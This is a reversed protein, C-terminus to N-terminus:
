ANQEVVMEGSPSKYQWAEATSGGTAVVVAVGGEFTLSLSPIASAARVTKGILGVLKDNFGAEQQTHATSGIRIESANYISFCADQFVLQFYDHTFVVQSLPESPLISATM